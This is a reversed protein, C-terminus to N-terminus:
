CLETLVSESPAYGWAIDAGEEGAAGVGVYGRAVLATCRLARPITRPRGFVALVARALSRHLVTNGPVLVLTGPELERPDPLRAMIGAVSTDSEGLVM